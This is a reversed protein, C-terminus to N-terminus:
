KNQLTLWPLPHLLNFSPKYVTPKWPALCYPFGPKCLKCTTQFPMTPDPAHFHFKIKWKPDSESYFKCWTISTPFSHLVTTDTWLLGRLISIPGLCVAITKTEKKKGGTTGWFQTSALRSSYLLSMANIFYDSPHLHRQIHSFTLKGPQTLFSPTYSCTSGRSREWAREGLFCFMKSSFTFNYTKHMQQCACMDTCVCRTLRPTGNAWGAWPLRSTAM